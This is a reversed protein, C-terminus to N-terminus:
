QDGGDDEGIEGIFSDIIARHDEANIERELMREAIASSVEVIERKIGEEANKRTLAAEAEARRAIVDAKANAEDVIQAARYKATATADSIISNAQEDAGRLKEEWVARNELAQKEAADAAAYQGEIAARRDDILKQVPKFLFRKVILFILVLNALSVLINWLNVSIIDLTQM